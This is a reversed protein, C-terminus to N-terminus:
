YCAKLLVVDLLDTGAPEVRRTDCTQNQPQTVYLCIYKLFM